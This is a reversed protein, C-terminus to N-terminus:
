LPKAVAPAGERQWVSVQGQTAIQTFGYEGLRAAMAARAEPAVWQPHEEMVIRWVREAMVRAEHAVLDAEAGEIDCVLIADDGRVRAAVERLTVALVRVDGETACGTSLFDERFELAVTDGTYAIAGAVVEFAAGCRRRNADLIPLLQPNAEVVVHQRPDHLRRNLLCAVIGLGGGLEIIPKDPEFYKALLQREPREYRGLVLQCRVLDDVLGRPAEFWRGEVRVYPTFWSVVRGLSRYDHQHLWYRVTSATESDAVRSHATRLV